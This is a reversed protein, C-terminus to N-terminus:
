IKIKELIVASHIQFFVLLFVIVIWYIVFMGINVGYSVSPILVYLYRILLFGLYFILLPIALVSLKDLGIKFVKYLYKMSRHKAFEIYLINTFYIYLLLLLFVALNTLNQKSGFFAANIILFWVLTWILNLFSFKSLFKWTNKKGVLRNNILGQFYSWNVVTFVVFFLILLIGFVIFNRLLGAASELQEASSQLLTQQDLTALPDQWRLLLFRSVVFIGFTMVILGLYYVFILLINKQSNRLAKTFYHKHEELYKVLQGM